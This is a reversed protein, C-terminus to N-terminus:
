GLKLVHQVCNLLAAPGELGFVIAGFEPQRDSSRAAVSVIRASPWVAQALELCKSRKEVSLTHCLVIVDFPAGYALSVLEELTSVFVADYRRELVACRTEGLVRDQSFCLVRPRSISSTNMVPGLYNSRTFGEPAFYPLPNSPLVETMLSASHM